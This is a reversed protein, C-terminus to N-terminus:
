SSGGNAGDHNSTRRFVAAGIEKRVRLREPGPLRSLAAHPLYDDPFRERLAEAELEHLQGAEPFSRVVLGACLGTRAMIEAPQLGEATLQTILEDLHLMLVVGRSHEAFERGDPRRYRFLSGDERRIALWDGEEAILAQEVIKEPGDKEELVIAGEPVAARRQFQAVHDAVTRRPIKIAPVGADGLELRRAIETAGIGKSALEQIARRTQETYKRPAAM